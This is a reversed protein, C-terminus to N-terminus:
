EKVIKYVSINENGQFRLIYCGSKLFGLNLKKVVASVPERLITRGSVDTIEVDGSFMKGFDIKIFDTVPNPSIKIETIAAASIGLITNITNLTTNTIVAPNSDFYIAATNLIQTGNPLGQNCRIRYSIMGHSAPENTNSDPLQINRYEFRIINGTLISWQVPHTSGLVKISSFDLDTDLTDIIIIDQAPANGTNQFRISYTFETNPSVDHSLGVGQPSVEKANPDWSSLIPYCMTMFNNGQNLDNTLPLVNMTICVTDGIQLSPDLTLYMYNPEGFALGNYYTYGLNTFNWTLTDGSIADPPDLAMAFNLNPDHIIQYTGNQGACTINGIGTQIFATNNIKFSGGSFFAMKDHLSNCAVAFDFNYNGNFNFNHTANSPCMFVYSHSYISPPIQITFNQNNAAADISFGGNSGTYTEAIFCSGSYLFIPVNIAGTEGADRVCNGNYDIYVYGAIQACTDSVLISHPNFLTDSKGDPATLIYTVDFNGYSLYDHDFASAIHLVGPQAQYGTVTHLDSLGDGYLVKAQFTDTVAYGYAYSHMSLWAEYPLSEYCWYASDRGSVVNVSTQSFGKALVFLFALSLLIKKM